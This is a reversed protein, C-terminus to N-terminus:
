RWTNRRVSAIVRSHAVATASCRVTRARGPTRARPHLFQDVGRQAASRGVARPLGGGIAHDTARTLVDRRFGVAGQAGRGQALEETMRVRMALLDSTVTIMRFGQELRRPTLDGPRTSAPCWARRAAPPSSPLLAETFEARDDNNGPPLGLSLSLDAPGVYIADVGPVALIDDINRSRRRRDRDDPHRRRSRQGHRPLRRRAHRGDGPRLQARGPPPYRSGHVVAQAEAVSNVMPVVVGEVGADLMKGIIGPENWPVRAIPHSGGLLIGQVMGVTAQYDVAGHQNDVCVYDFGVRGHDRRRGVVTVVALCWPDIPRRGVDRPLNM